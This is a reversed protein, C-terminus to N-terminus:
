SRTFRLRFRYSGETVPFPEARRVTSMAADDLIGYGSGSVLQMDEARGEANLRFSVDVAGEIGHRRASAPYYKFHELRQRVAVNSAKDAASNVATDSRVDAQAHVAPQQSAASQPMPIGPREIAQGPRSVAELDASLQKHQIMKQNKEALHVVASDPLAEFVPQVRAQQMATAAPEAQSLQEDVAYGPDDPLLELEVGALAPEADPMGEPLLLLYGALLLGHAAM